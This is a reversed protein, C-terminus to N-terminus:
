LLRVFIFTLRNNLYSLPSLFSLRVILVDIEENAIRILIKTTERAADPEDLELARWREKTLRWLVSDREASVTANRKGASLFTLEGSVTGPLMSEHVVHVAPPASAFTYAARLIGKEIL